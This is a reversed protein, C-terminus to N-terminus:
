NVTKVFEYGNKTLKLIVGSKVAEGNKFEIKGTVLNISKIAKIKDNIKKPTIDGDISNVAKDLLYVADYGLAAHPSPAKNYKAKYKKIFEDVKKDGGVPNFHALAYVNHLNGGSLEFLKDTPWGDGGLIVFKNWKNKAQRMMPGVNEDWGPIFLVDADYNSVKDILARFDRDNVSYSEESIVKGGNKEFSNKFSDALGVSYSISKDYIIVAKKLNLDNHAFNALAKGQFSDNFCIRTVYKKNKTIGDQTAAQVIMPVEYQDAYDGLLMANPSITPGLIANVKNVNVLDEFSKLAEKKDSKTDRIILEYKKNNNLESFALETGKKLDEGYASAGGTLSFLGGVKIRENKVEQKETGSSKKEDGKCSTLSIGIILLLVLLLKTQKTM